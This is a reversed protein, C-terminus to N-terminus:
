LVEWLSRSTGVTGRVQRHRVELPFAGEALEALEAILRNGHRTPTVDSSINVICVFTCIYIYM